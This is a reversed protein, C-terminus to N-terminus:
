VRRKLSIYIANFDGTIIERFEKDVDCVVVGLRMIDTQMEGPYFRAGM